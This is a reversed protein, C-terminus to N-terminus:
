SKKSNERFAKPDPSKRLACHISTPCAHDSDDSAKKEVAAIQANLKAVEAQLAATEAKYAKELDAASRPKRNEPLRNTAAKKKFEETQKKKAEVNKEKNNDDAQALPVAVLLCGLILAPFRPM